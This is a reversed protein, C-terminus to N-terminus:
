VGASAGHTTSPNNISQNRKCCTRKEILRNNITEKQRVFVNAFFFVTRLAGTLKNFYPRSLFLTNKIRFKVFFGKKFVKVDEAIDINYCSFTKKTCINACLESASLFEPTMAEVSATQATPRNSVKLM